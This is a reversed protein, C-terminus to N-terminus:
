LLIKTYKELWVVMTMNGEKDYLGKWLIDPNGMPPTLFITIDNMEVRVLSKVVQM